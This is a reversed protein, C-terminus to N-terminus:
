DAKAAVIVGPSFARVAQAAGLAGIVTVALLVIAFVRSTGKRRWSRAKARRPLVKPKFCYDTATGM